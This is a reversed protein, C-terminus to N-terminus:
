VPRLVPVTRSFPSTSAARIMRHNRHRPTPFREGAGTMVGCLFYPPRNVHRFLLKKFQRHLECGGIDASSLEYLRSVKARHCNFEDVGDVILKFIKPFTDRNINFLFAARRTIRFSVQRM